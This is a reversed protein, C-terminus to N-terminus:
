FSTNLRMFFVDSDVTSVSLGAAKFVLGTSVIAGSSQFGVANPYWSYYGTEPASKIYTKGGRGWTTDLAGEATLKAYIQEYETNGSNAQSWGAFIASGDSAVAGAYTGTSYPGARELYVGNSAYSTDLTGDANFRTALLNGKGNVTGNGGVVIKGSSQLGMFVPTSSTLRSDSFMAIGNTGFSSDLTGNSNFRIVLLQGSTGSGAAGAIVIKQDPQILIARSSDGASGIAAVTVKGATGFTADVAGATTLRALAILQHGAVTAYGTAVLKGDAQQAVGFAWDINGSLDFLKIGTTNFTTDLTGNTNYRAFAFDESTAAGTTRATGAVVFKGDSQIVSGISRNYNTGMRTVRYGTTNFSTDFSGDANLRAVITDRYTGTFTYGAILMKNNSDVVM